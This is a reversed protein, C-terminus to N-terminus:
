PKEPYVVPQVWGEGPSFMASRMAQTAPHITVWGTMSRLRKPRKVPSPILGAPPESPPRMRALMTEAAMRFAEPAHPALTQVMALLEPFAKLKEADSPEKPNVIPRVQMM